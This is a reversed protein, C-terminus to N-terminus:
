ITKIIVMGFRSYQFICKLFGSGDKWKFVYWVGDGTSCVVGGGGM